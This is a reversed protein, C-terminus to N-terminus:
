AMRGGVVLSNVYLLKLLYVLTTLLWVHGFEAQRDQKTRSRFTYVDLTKKISFATLIYEEPCHPGVIFLM